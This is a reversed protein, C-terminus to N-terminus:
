QGDDSGRDLLSPGDYAASRIVDLRIPYDRVYYSRCGELQAKLERTIQRHGMWSPANVRIVFDLTRRPETM